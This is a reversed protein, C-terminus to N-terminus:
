DLDHIPQYPNAIKFHTKLIFAELDEMVEADADDEHDYGMLHLLGHVILHTLHDKLQKDQDQAEQLITDYSLVLDGLAVPPHNKGQVSLDACVKEFPKAGEFSLVNTPKDKQRYDLNLQQIERDDTLVVSLELSAALVSKVSPIHTMVEHLTVILCDQLLAPCHITLADWRDDHTLIDVHIHPNSLIKSSSLDLPTDSDSATHLGPRPTDDTM